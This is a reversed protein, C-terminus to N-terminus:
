GRPASAGSPASRVDAADEIRRLHGELAWASRQIAAITDLLEDQPLPHGSRLRRQLLQAQGLIMTLPTRLADVAAAVTDPSPVDEQGANGTSM